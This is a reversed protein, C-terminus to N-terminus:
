IFDWNPEPQKLAVLGQRADVQIEDGTRIKHTAGTVGFVAPVGYERALTASHDLLGGTEAVIAAVVGFLISLEFQSEHCVLVEGPLVNAAENLSNIVRARGTVMGPSVARGTLVERVEAMRGAAPDHDKAEMRMVKPPTYRSWRRLQDKREIVARVLTDRPSVGNLWDMIERYRLLFADDVASLLGVAQLRRGVERVADRELVMCLLVPEDRDFQLPMYRRALHLARRFVQRRVRNLGSLAEAEIADRIALLHARELCISPKSRNVWGEFDARARGEEEMLDCIDQEDVLPNGRLYLHRYKRFFRRFAQEREEDTQYSKEALRCLEQDRRSLQDDLSKLLIQVKDVDGVWIRHLHLLIAALTKPSDGLKGRQCLFAGGIEVVTQLYQGLESNSLKTLDQEGLEELHAHHQEWLSRFERDLTRAAALQRVSLVFQSVGNTEGGTPASAFRWRTYRFGHLYLEDRGVYPLFLPHAQRFYADCMQQSRSRYYWSYPRMERPTRDLPQVLELSGAEMEAPRPSVPLFPPVKTVPRVRLLYVQSDTIGWELTEYKREHEDLLLGIHRLQSWARSEGPRREYPDLRYVGLRPGEHVELVFEDPSGTIPDVTFLTGRSNPVIVQQMLVAMSSSLLDVGFHYAYSLAKASFLSQWCEIVAKLAAEESDVDLCTFHQGVFSQEPSDENTASSRVAVPVSELSRFAEGVADVVAQPVRRVRFAARIAWEAAQFHTMTTPQMAALISAIEGQLGGQQMFRRYLDTSLVVGPPVPCGLRIAEGLRAAKGGCEAVDALSLTDLPRLFSM